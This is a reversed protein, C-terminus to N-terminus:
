KTKSIGKLTEVLLQNTERFIRGEAQAVEVQKEFSIIIGKLEKITDKEYIESQFSQIKDELRQIQRRMDAKSYYWM